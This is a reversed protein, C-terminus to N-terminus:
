VIRESLKIFGKKRIKKKKVQIESGVNGTGRSEIHAQLLFRSVERSRKDLEQEIEHEALKKAEESMLWEEVNEYAKRAQFLSSSEIARESVHLPVDKKEEHM